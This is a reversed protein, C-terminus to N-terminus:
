IPSDPAPRLAELNIQTEGVQGLMSNREATRISDKQKVAQSFSM